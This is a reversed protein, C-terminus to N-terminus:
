SGAPATAAPPAVPAAKEKPKRRKEKKVAAPKVAAQGQQPTPSAAKPEAKRKKGRRFQWWRVGTVATAASNPSSAVGVPNAVPSAKRAVPLPQSNADYEITPGRQQGRRWHSASLLSGDPRWKRWLGAKLGQRFSGSGLLRDTRDSLQYPGDLLHGNYAGMTRLIHDQGQWYYMRNALTSPQRRTTTFRQVTDGNVLTLHTRNIAARELSSLTQASASFGIPGDLLALLLLLRYYFTM